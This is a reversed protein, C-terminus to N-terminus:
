VPILRYNVFVKIPSDGATPDGTGVSVLIASNPLLQAAKLEEIGQQMKELGLPGTAEDLLDSLLDVNTRGQGTTDLESEEDFDEAEDIFGGDDAVSLSFQPIKLGFHDDERTTALLAPNFQVTSAVEASSVGTGGMGMSRADSPAFPVASAQQLSALTIAAGLLIKHNMKTM